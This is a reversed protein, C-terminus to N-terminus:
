PGSPAPAGDNADFHRVGDASVPREFFMWVHGSDGSRSRELYAPIKLRRCTAISALADDQWTKKDFDAALLWCTEDM